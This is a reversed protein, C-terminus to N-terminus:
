TQRKAGVDGAPHDSVALDALQPRAVAQEVGELQPAVLGHEVDAPAAAQEQDAGGLARVAPFAGATSM